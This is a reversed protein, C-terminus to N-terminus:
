AGKESRKIRDLIGNVFKGSEKDGYKKAMDIAENIAVKPPTDPCFLLELSAIRLINRDVVAMREMAWNDACRTILSDIEEKRESVGTVLDEAFDSVAKDAPENNRWYKSICEDAPERGVDVAYLIKM